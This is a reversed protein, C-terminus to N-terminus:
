FEPREVELYNSQSLPMPNTGRVTQPSSPELSRRPKNPSRPSNYTVASVDLYTDSYSKIDGTAIATEIAQPYVCEYAYLFMRDIFKPPTESTAVAFAVHRWQQQLPRKSYFFVVLVFIAIYILCVLVIRAIPDNSIYYPSGPTPFAFIGVMVPLIPFFARGILELLYSLFLSSKLQDPYKKLGKPTANREFVNM